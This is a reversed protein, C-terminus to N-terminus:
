RALSVPQCKRREQWQWFMVIGFIVLGVLGTIRAPHIFLIASGLFMLRQFWNTKGLAFGKLAIVLSVIGLVAFLFNIIVIGASGKLLLAPNYVFMFPVIFAGLGVQVAKWGTEWFNSNSISSTVYVALCVPPTIFSAMGWYMVYMHATFASLGLKVLAPAVLIVLTFYCPLADLGMGLIFSAMAVLVLTFLLSGGGLDLIFSSFKIGLGSLELAGILMGVGATVTAVTVWSKVAGVISKWIKSPMMWNNRDKSLFSTSILFPLSLLGATDPEYKKVLLFYILIGLPVVYFWGEKITKAFSILESRPIARLDTKVAEFHVSSFAGIYYLLAPIAAALAISAYSIGLWEAMVFAVAGMVPPMITGGTAAVAEVAAAFSPSYGVRMMLPITFAGTTAANAAASGSISGFLGSAVVAAKGPGGRMWGTTALALNLFWEGAGAAQLMNGYILFIILVTSSVGLPVGFIGSGSIYVNYALRDFPYGSGHLIGPLYNQFLTIVIFFTIILPLVLGTVRRVAELLVVMLIAALIMGKADLYGSSVYQYAQPYFFVIFGGGVLGGALFVVDHWALRDKGTGGHVKKTISRALFVLVLVFLLSVARDRAPITFIGVWMLVGSIVVIHYIGAIGAIFNVISNLSLRQQM